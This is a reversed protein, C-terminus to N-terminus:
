KKSRKFKMDILHLILYYSYYMCASFMYVDDKYVCIWGLKDHCKLNNIICYKLSRDYIKKGYDTIRVVRDQKTIM